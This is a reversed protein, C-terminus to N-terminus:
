RRGSPHVGSSTSRGRRRRLGGAGYPSAVGYASSAYLAGADFDKVQTFSSTTTPRSPSASITRARTPASCAPVERPVVRCAPEPRHQATVIVLPIPADGDVFKTQNEVFVRGDSKVFCAAGRWIACGVAEFNTFTAWEGALYDFVLGPADSSVFRIQNTNPAVLAGTVQSANFSEIQEGLYSCNLGRDLLYFGKPTQFMIGQPVTVISSPNSCGTDTTILSPAGYDQGAGTNTPGDGALAFIASEKFILLKDDLVALATIPGGRQDVTVALTDNFAVAEGVPTVTSFRLAYGDAQGALFVRDKFTVLLNSSPPADAELADGTTYLAELPAIDTDSAFGDTATVSDATKVNAIPSAIPTLRHFVTGNNKTRCLVVRVGAWATIRLTPITIRQAVGTGTV